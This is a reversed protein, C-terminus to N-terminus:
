GTVDCLEQPGLRVASLDLGYELDRAVGRRSPRANAGRWFRQDCVQQALGWPDFLAM